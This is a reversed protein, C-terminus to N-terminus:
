WVKFKLTSLIGFIKQYWKIKPEVVEWSVGYMKPYIWNDGISYIWYGEKELKEIVEKRPPTFGFTFNTKGEKTARDISEIISKYKRDIVSPLNSDSIKIAQQANM